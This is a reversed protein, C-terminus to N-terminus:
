NKVFGKKNDTEKLVNIGLKKLEKYEEYSAYYKYSGNKTLMYIKAKSSNNSMIRDIVTAKQKDTMKGYTLEVYKNKETDLVKYKKSGSIFEKLEKENLQGYFKNLEDIESSSLQVKEGDIEYSGKLSGKKVGLSMAIKEQESINYVAVDLPSLKNVFKTLFWAKYQIQKEGTYPDYQKPFSYVVGPISQVVIQELKGLIGKSYQVKHGYTMSTLTKLFNPIFMSVIDFPQDRLWEGFTESYRFSNFLDTFTSDLFMTDLVNGVVSWVDGDKIGSILTISLLIGQSGFLDSIDVYVNGVHLKYKDDEEDIGAVGFAALAAGIGAGITGIIGKGINRKAIYEAFRSSVVTKWKKLPPKLNLM